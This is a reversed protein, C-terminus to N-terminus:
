AREWKQKQTPVARRNQDTVPWGGDTVALQRRNSALRRRNCGVAAPQLGVAAPQLDVATPQLGAEVEALTRPHFGFQSSRAHGYRASCGKEITLSAGPGGM